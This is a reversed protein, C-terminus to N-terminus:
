SELSKEMGSPGIRYWFWQQWLRESGDVVLSYLGTYPTADDVVAKALVIRGSKVQLTHTTAESVSVLSCAVLIVSLLVSLLVNTTRM